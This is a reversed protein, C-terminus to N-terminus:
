TLLSARAATKSAVAATQEALTTPSETASLAFVFNSFIVAHSLDGPNSLLTCRAAAQEFSVEILILEV